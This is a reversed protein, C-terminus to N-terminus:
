YIVLASLITNAVTKTTSDGQTCCTHAFSINV